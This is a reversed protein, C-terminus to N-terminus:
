AGCLEDATKHTINDSDFGFPEVTKLHEESGLWKKLEANVADRLAEDQPRFALAGYGIHSPDDKFETMAEVGEGAKEALGKMTLQTGIAADARGTRVAQLQSTTDPVQVIQSDKIGAERAYALNVTGSMIALKVSDDKAIDEYSHLGKPNGPKVLLADPLQYHPDTFIVQKCREPTIYMGAAILDFRSARLGPILSGWETLVPKITKIGMKQFIKEVIEPSEGTVSGDTATYAFPTENAYGIRVSSNAKIDELADAQALGALSLGSLLTSALLLKGFHLPRTRSM